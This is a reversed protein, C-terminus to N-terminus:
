ADFQKHEQGLELMCTEAIHQHRSERYSSRERFWHTATKNWMILNSDLVWLGGCDFHDRYVSRPM